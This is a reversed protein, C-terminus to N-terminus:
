WTNKFAGQIALGMMCSQFKSGHSDFVRGWLMVHCEEHFMSSQVFTFGSNLVVDLEIECHINKNLDYMCMTQAILREGQVNYLPPVVFVKTEYLMGGFYQENNASFIEEAEKSEVRDAITQAKATCGLMLMAASLIISKRM